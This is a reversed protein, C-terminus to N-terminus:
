SEEANYFSRTLTLCAEMQQKKLRQQQQRLEKEADAAAAVGLFAVLIFTLVRKAMIKDVQNKV